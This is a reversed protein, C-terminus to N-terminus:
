GRKNLWKELVKNALLGSQPLVYMGRNSVIYVSGNVDVKEKLKYEAIIEDSIDRIQIRVYEPRKLPTM